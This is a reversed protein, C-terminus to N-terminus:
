LLDFLLCARVDMNLISAIEPTLPTAEPVQRPSLPSSRAQEAARPRAKPQGKPVVFSDEEDVEDDFLAEIADGQEERWENWSERAREKWVPNDVDYDEEEEDEYERNVEDYESWIDDDDEVGDEDWGYDQVENRRRSNGEAYSGRSRRDNYLDIRREDDEDEDNDHAFFSKESRKIEIMRDHVLKAMNDTSLDQKESMKQRNDPGRAASSKKEEQKMVDLVAQNRIRREEEVAEDWEESMETPDVSAASQRSPGTSKAPGKVQGGASRLVYPNQDAYWGEARMEELIEARKRRQTEPSYNAFNQEKMRRSHEEELAKSTEMRKRQNQVVQMRADNQKQIFYSRAHRVSIAKGDLKMGNLKDIVADASKPTDIVAYGMGPKILKVEQVGAFPKLLENLKDERAAAPLNSFFVRLGEPNDMGDTLMRISTSPCSPFRRKTFFANNLGNGRNLCKKEYGHFSPRIDGRQTTLYNVSLKQFNSAHKKNGFSPFNNVYSETASSFILVLLFKWYM